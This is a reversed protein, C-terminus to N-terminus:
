WSSLVSRFFWTVTVFHCWFRLVFSAWINLNSKCTQNLFWLFILVHLGDLKNSSQSHCQTTRIFLYTPHACSLWASSVFWANTLPMPSVMSSTCTRGHPQPTTWPSLNQLSIEWTVWKVPRSHAKQKAMFNVYTGTRVYTHALQWLTLTALIQSKFIALVVNSLKNQMCAISSGVFHCSTVSLLVAINM